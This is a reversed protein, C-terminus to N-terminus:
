GIIEAGQVTEEGVKADVLHLLAFGAPLWESTDVADIEAADEAADVRM